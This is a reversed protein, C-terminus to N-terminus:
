EAPAEPRDQEWTLVLELGASGKTEAVLAALKGAQIEFGLSIKLEVTTPAVTRAASRIMAALEHVGDLVHSTMVKDALSVDTTAAAIVPVTIEAGSPLQVTTYIAPM